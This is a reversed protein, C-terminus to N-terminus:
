TQLDLALDKIKAKDFRKSWGSTSLHHRPTNVNERVFTSTFPKVVSPDKVNRLLYIVSNRLIILRIAYRKMFRVQTTNLKQTSLKLTKKSKINIWLTIRKNNKPSKVVAM